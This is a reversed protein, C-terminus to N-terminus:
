SESHLLTSDFTTNENRRESFDFAFVDSIVSAEDQSHFRKRGNLMALMSNAFLDPGALFLVVQMIACVSTLLTTEITWLILTDLMKYTKRRLDSDRSRWLYFCLSSAIIIDLAPTAAMAAIKVWRMDLELAMVASTSTWLQVESILGVILSFLSSVISLILIGWNGSLIRVRNGFFLQVVTLSLVSFVNQLEISHPPNAQVQSPSQGYFTITIAYLRFETLSAGYSGCIIEALEIFWVLAVTGKLPASDHPFERFYHLAQLTEIGFLFVAVISGIETAGYSGDLQPFGSAM